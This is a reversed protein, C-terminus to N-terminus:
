PLVVALVLTVGTKGTKTVPSWQPMSQSPRNGKTCRDERDEHGPEMAARDLADPDGPARARRGPRRSRAGNRRSSAPGPPGCSRRRGPRRSRAGNRSRSGFFTVSRSRTKGTKTVPSWQPWSQALTTATPLTDERDEHGPEMAARRGPRPPALPCTKGTKTVPSWQPRSSPWRSRGPSRDERDEHGPEM